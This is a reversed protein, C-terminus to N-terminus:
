HVTEKETPEPHMEPEHVARHWSDALEHLAQAAQCITNHSPETNPERSFWLVQMQLEPLLVNFSCLYHAAIRRIMAEVAVQQPTKRTTKRPKRETPTKM